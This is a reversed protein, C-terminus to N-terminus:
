GPFCGATPRAPQKGNQNEEERPQQENTVVNYDMGELFFIGKPTFTSNKILEPHNINCIPLFNLVSYTSINGAQNQPNKASHVPTHLRRCPIPILDLLIFSSFWHCLNTNYHSTIRIHRYHCLRSINQLLQPNRILHLNNGCVPFRIHKKFICLASFFFPELYNYRTRTHSRMKRTHTSCNERHRNNTNRHM